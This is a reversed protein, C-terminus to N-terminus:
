HCCSSATEQPKQEYEDHRKVFNMTSDENRGLPARDLIMLTGILEEGGRAYSSYTHFAEGAENRYFASLGPLEDHAESPPVERFNYYVKEKALDEKSFSVHYDFNFDSGFSSVWPFKWGMRKKYAEIKDLPARAVAIFTVDHNNLHPLTGDIHDSLFSCGLCGADWDPGLMFHYVILQSRGDFLDALSKRGKPTDFVYDKDVKVWPMALREARVKDRLKTEEKELALLRRSAELWEERSVVPNKPSMTVDM